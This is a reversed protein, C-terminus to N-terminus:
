TYKLFEWKYGYATSIKGNLCRSMYARNKAGINSCALGISNVM